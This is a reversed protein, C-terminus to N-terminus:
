KRHSSPYSPHGLRKDGVPNCFLEEREVVYRTQHLFHDYIALYHASHQFHFSWRPNGVGLIPYDCSDEGQLHM